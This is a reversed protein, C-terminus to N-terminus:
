YADFDFADFHIRAPDPSPAREALSLHIVELPSPRLRMPISVGGATPASVDARRGLWLRLPAPDAPSLDPLEVAGEAPEVRLVARVAPWGTPALISRVGSRTEVRYESRPNRVRWRLSDPDWVRRWSPRAEVAVKRPSRWLLRAELPGCATFGLRHVFGPASRGNAVGIVEEVGDDRALAYTEEALRTFLGRGQHGPHTATNLSLAARHVGAESAAAIPIVAYHGVLADGQWANMGVVDGAPNEVYLWRLYEPVYLDKRGFVAALFGSLIRLDGNGTDVRRVEYSM